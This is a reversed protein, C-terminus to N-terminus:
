SPVQYPSLGRGLDCQTLHLGLQGGGGGLLPVAPWNEACTQQRWVAPHILIGRPLSTPTPRSSMTNSRSGAVWGLIPVAAAVGSEALRLQPLVAPHILFLMGSTHCINIKGINCWFESLNICDTVRRNISNQHTCALQRPLPVRTPVQQQSPLQQSLRFMRAAASAATAVALRCTRRQRRARRTATHTRM